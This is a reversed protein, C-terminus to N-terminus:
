CPSKDSTNPPRTALSTTWSAGTGTASRQEWADADVHGRRACVNVFWPLQVGNAFWRLLVCVHRQLQIDAKDEDNVHQEDFPRRRPHRCRTAPTPSSAPLADRAADMLRSYKVHGHRLV